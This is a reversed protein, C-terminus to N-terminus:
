IITSQQGGQEEVKVPEEPKDSQVIPDLVVKVTTLRPLLDPWIEGGIRYIDDLEELHVNIGLDEDKTNRLASFVKKIAAM